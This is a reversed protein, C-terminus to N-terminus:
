HDVDSFSIDILLICVHKHTPVSEDYTTSGNELFIALKIAASLQIVM